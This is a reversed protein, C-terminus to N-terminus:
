LTVTASHYRNQRVYSPDRNGDKALGTDDGREKVKILRSQGRCHTFSTVDPKGCQRGSLLRHSKCYFTTSTIFTVGYDTRNIEGCM